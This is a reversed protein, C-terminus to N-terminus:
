CLQYEPLSMYQIIKDKISEDEHITKQNPQRQLIFEALRIKQTEINQELKNWDPYAKIRKEIRAKTNANRKKLRENMNESLDSNDTWEIVGFNLILSPIKMRILLTSSDIWGIGSNWGAVNPPFFLVQNLKKQMQIIAKPEKFEIPIMRNIGVLFETPSKIRCGITSSDFFAPLEFISRLLKTLDYDGDFFDKSLKEITNKSLERGVMFDLIKETIYKATQTQELLIRIVDEGKFNGTQGLITKTETDQTKANFQFKGTKKNIKWGTFARAAEKIDQETYVNDRGLTFLEMVERAFNENPQGKKNQQNNLFAIMAPSKSVELLLAKFSGLSHERLINNLELNAIPNKIRVAFHDHFFFTMKERLIAKTQVMEKMWVLNMELMTRNALKRLKKRAEKSLSIRDVYFASLDMKLPTVNKSQEFIDEIIATKSWNQIQDLKNPEIGFGARWYLHQIEKKSLNM